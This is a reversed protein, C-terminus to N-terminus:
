WRIVEEENEGFYANLEAYDNLIVPDKDKPRYELSFNTYYCTEYCESLSQKIFIVNEMLNVSNLSISQELPPPTIITFNVFSKVEDAAEEESTQQKTSEPQEISPAVNDQESTVNVPASADSPSLTNMLKVKHSLLSIKQPSALLLVCM